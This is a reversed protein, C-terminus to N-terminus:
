WLRRLRVKMDRDPPMGVAGFYRADNQPARDSERGDLTTWSLFEIDFRDLLIALTMMIEHKAFHRGPCISVGGGYPFFSSTRGATTFEPKRVTKGSEDPEEVYKLHRWGWFESAPHEDAGWINEDHHAITSPAQVVSGTEIRYGGMTMPQTLERTVNISVHMRLTEMYVSQLLPLGILKKKDLKRSGTEPDSVFAEQVEEKVAKFLCPDKVVEMFSWTTMPIANADTGIIFAATLGAATQPKLSKRMWIALERTVRAGFNPEWESDADPGSWDFNEWASELYRRTMSHFRDRVEWPHRNMWRPLGWALHHAISEFESMRTIFDPHLELIRTGMFTTLVVEAMDKTFFDLMQVTKWEGLPYTRALKEMFRAYFLDTLFAVPGARALHESYVHHHGAWLRENEPTDETGPLPNKLRGSRDARWMRLEEPSMGWVYAMVDLMFIDSTMERQSRFMAQVHQPTTTMYVRRTGILVKILDHQGLAIRTRELFGFIVALSLAVLPLIISDYSAASAASALTENIRNM